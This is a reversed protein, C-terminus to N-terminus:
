VSHRDPATRRIKSCLAIANNFFGGDVYLDVAQEYFTVAEDVNGQRLLLEGVRNFLVVDAEYVRGGLEGLIEQYVSLAKDFQKKQEYEGARKKLKAINSM